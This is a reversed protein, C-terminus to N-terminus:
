WRGCNRSFSFELLAAERSELSSAAWYPPAPPQTQGGAGRGRTFTLGSREHGDGTLLQVGKADGVKSM